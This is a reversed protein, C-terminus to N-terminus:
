GDTKISNLLMKSVWGFKWSRTEMLTWKKGDCTSPAVHLVFFLSIWREGWKVESYDCLSDIWHNEYQSIYNGWHWWKCNNCPPDIENNNNNNNNNNNGGEVVKEEWAWWNPGMAAPPDVQRSGHSGGHALVPVHRRPVPAKPSLFKDKIALRFGILFTQLKPFIM